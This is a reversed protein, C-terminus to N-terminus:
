SSNIRVTLQEPDRGSAATPLVVRDGARMPCGAFELDRTVFRSTTVIAYYRLFEEVADPITAPHEYLRARHEPDEALHRFIYTLMGAVTDLGAMYLLFSIAVLEMDTLPRDDVTARTLYTVLDERPDNRRVMILEGLYQSIQQQTASRLTRDPDADDSTHMLQDIWGLFKSSEEVPLGMIKMFITTPYLRAFDSVLDCRGSARFCEILEVCRERIRPTMERATAETFWPNLLRRYKQHEPSDLTLPIL